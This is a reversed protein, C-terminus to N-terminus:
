TTPREHLFVEVDRMDYYIRRSGPVYVGLLARPKFRAAYVSLPCVLVDRFASADVDWFRFFSAKTEMPLKEFVRLRGM